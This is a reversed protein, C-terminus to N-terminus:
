IKRLMSSRGTLPRATENDVRGPVFRDSSTLTEDTAGDLAALLILTRAPLSTVFGEDFRRADTERPLLVDFIDTGDATVADL